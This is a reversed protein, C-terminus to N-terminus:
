RQQSQKRKLKQQEVLNSWHQEKGLINQLATKTLAYKQVQCKWFESKSSFTEMGKRMDQSMKLKFKAPFEHRKATKQFLKGNSSGVPALILAQKRGGPNRQQQKKAQSKLDIGKELALQQPEDLQKQFDEKMAEAELQTKSKSARFYPLQVHKLM